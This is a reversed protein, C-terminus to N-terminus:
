NKFLRHLTTKFGGGAKRTRPGIRCFYSKSFQGLNLIEWKQLLLIVAGAIRPKMLIVPSM